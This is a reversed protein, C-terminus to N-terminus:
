DFSNILMYLLPQIQQWSYPDNWPWMYCFQDLRYECSLLAGFLLLLNLIKLSMEASKSDFQITYTNIQITEILRNLHAAEDDPKYPLLNLMSCLQRIQFGPSKVTIQM